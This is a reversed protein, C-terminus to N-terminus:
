THNHTLNNEGDFDYNYSFSGAELDNGNKLNTDTCTRINIFWEDACIEDLNARKTPDPELIRKLLARPKAPLRSFPEFSDFGEELFQKYHENKPHAMEWPVCHFIMAYYVIGLSWVDVLRGDYEQSTFEEPAIYPCSGCLGKIKHIPKTDNEKLPRVDNGYWELDCFVESVGFDTIKLHGRSDILLNEPKLDRHSVGMQHLYKVGQVTQKFCCDIEEQGMKGRQIASFLDGGSCYEMVEYWKEGIMVFDITNVVNEHHMLMAIRFERILKKLYDEGSENKKRKRLEKVAYREISGEMLNGAALRVIGSAGRGIIKSGIFHYKLKFSLDHRDHILPVTEKLMELEDDSIEVDIEAGERERIHLFELIKQTMKLNASTPPKKLSEQKLLKSQSKSDVTPLHSLSKSILHKQTPKIITKSLDVDTERDHDYKQNKARKLNQNSEDLHLLQNFLVIIKSKKRAHAGIEPPPTAPRSEESEPM